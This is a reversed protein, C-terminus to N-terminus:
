GEGVKRLRDVTQQIATRKTRLPHVALGGGTGASPEIEWKGEVMSSTLASMRACAKHAFELQKRRGFILFGLRVVPHAVPAARSVAHIRFEVEGTDPSKIVQYDIQGQEFHGELTRYSWTWVQQPDGNWVRTETAIGAARVGAYIRLGWFDIELLMNREAHSESPDYFARILSPDVFEYTEVLHRAAAWSGDGRPPGVAEPMLPQRYDDIHWRPETPDELEEPDFNWTLARLRELEARPDVASLVRLSAM